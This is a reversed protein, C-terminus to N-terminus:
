LFSAKLLQWVIASAIGAAVGALLDDGMVGIGGKAERDIRGILSPKKIDFFRFFAFSLLIQLALGNELTPLETFPTLVGPAISLALWIGALEDIVIRKDDHTRTQAEYANIAKIGALTALLTALLLTQPGFLALLAVGPILAALTGFTGPAKPLLGSYGVTLFFWNM